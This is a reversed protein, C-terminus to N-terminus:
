KTCELIIHTYPIRLLDHRINCSIDPFIKSALAIYGDKTRVNQGRDKSIIWKACPSQNDVFVGDFTILRGGPKLVTQAIQFLKLAEDDDLHHLIGVALVLDFYSQQTLNSTSVRECRFTAYNGFRKQAMEIYQESLDFGLYEVEPLYPILDGPGCGIDLIRDGKQPRIYNEVFIPRSRNGGLLWGFLSYMSPLSLISRIGSTIQPM